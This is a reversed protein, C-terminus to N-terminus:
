GWSPTPSIASPIPLFAFLMGMWEINSSKPLTILPDYRLCGLSLTGKTTKNNLRSLIRIIISSVTRM